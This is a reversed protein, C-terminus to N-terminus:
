VVMFVLGGGMELLCNNGFSSSLIQYSMLSMFGSKKCLHSSFLLVVLVFLDYLIIYFYFGRM